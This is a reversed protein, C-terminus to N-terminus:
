LRGKERLTIRKVRTAMARMRMTNEAETPAMQLIWHLNTSSLARSLTLVVLVAVDGIPELELMPVGSMM